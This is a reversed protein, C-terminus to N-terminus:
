FNDTVSYCDELNVGNSKVFKLLYIMLKEDIMDNDFLEKGKEFDDQTVIIESNHEKNYKQLTTDDIKTKENITSEYKKESIANVSQIDNSIITILLLLLFMLIKKM